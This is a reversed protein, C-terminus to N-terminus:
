DLPAAVTVGSGKRRAESILAEVRTKRLETPAIQTCIGGVLAPNTAEPM